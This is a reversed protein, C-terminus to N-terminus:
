WGGPDDFGCDVEISSGREEWVRKIWEKSALALGQRVFVSSEDPFSVTLKTLSRIDFLFLMNWADIVLSAKHRGNEVLADFQTLRRHTNGHRLRFHNRPFDLRNTNRFKLNLTRLNPCMSILCHDISGEDEDIQSFDTFELHRIEKFGADKFTSLWDM